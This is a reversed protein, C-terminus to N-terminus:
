YNDDGTAVLCANNKEDICIGQQTPENNIAAIYALLINTPSSAAGLDGCMSETSLWKPKNAFMRELELLHAIAKNNRISSYILYNPTIKNKSYLDLSTFLQNSDANNTSINIRAISNTDKTLHIFAYGEGAAPHSEDASTMITNSTALHTLTQNDTKCDMGGSIFENCSAPLKSSLDQLSEFYNGTTFILNANSYYDNFFTQLTIRNVISAQPKNEEPLHIHIPLKKIIAENFFSRMENAVIHHMRTILPTNMYKPIPAAFVPSIKNSKSSHSNIWSIPMIGTNKASTQKYLDIINNGTSLCIKYNLLGLRYKAQNKLEDM